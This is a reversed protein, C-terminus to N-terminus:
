SDLAHGLARAWNVDGGSDEVATLLRRADVTKDHQGEQNLIGIIDCLRRAAAPRSAIGERRVYDDRHDTTGCKCVTGTVVHTDAPARDGADSEEVVYDRGEREGLEAHETLHEYGVICDRFTPDLADHEVPGVVLTRDVREIEKQQRFCGHCFRHDDRIHRILNRGAVLEACRESCYSGEVSTSRTFTDDCQERECQYTEQTAITVSM